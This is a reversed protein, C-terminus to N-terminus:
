PRWTESYGANSEVFLRLDDELEIWAHGEWAGSRRFGIVMSSPTGVAALWAQAVLAQPICSANPIWRALRTITSQVYHPDIPTNTRAPEGAMLLLDQITMSKALLSAAGLMIGIAM